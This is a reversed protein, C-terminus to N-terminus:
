RASAPWPSRRQTWKSSWRSKTAIGRPSPTPRTSPSALAGIKQSEEVVPYIKLATEKSGGAAPPAPNGELIRTAALGGRAASAQARQLMQRTYSRRAERSELAPPPVTRPGFHLTGDSDVVMQPVAPADALVAPDLKLDKQQSQAVMVCAIVCVGLLACLSVRPIRRTM